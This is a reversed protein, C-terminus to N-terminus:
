ISESQRTVDVFLTLKQGPQLYKGLPLSNWKRLESVTVKFKQSIRALSDGKRVTYNIRQTSPSFEPAFGYKKAEKAKPQSWWIVLKKGPKLMDRPAMGNWRALKSTTVDYKRAIDWLTDGSNVFYTIKLSDKRGSQLKRIRQDASLSYESLRKTSVPIVLSKGARIFHGKVDNVQTLLATTTNYKQAIQSLTEGNRIRHRRWEIRKQKPLEALNKRFTASKDLPVLLEHPGDPDTAWRNYGPNLMYLEDLTIEALEAALALDIQSGTDVSALYRSNSIPKLSIHYKEPQFIIQSIALLKPVYAQTEKPLSLSFFDTQKGRKRNKKIASSVTGSGSNYAALALLWNEDFKKHLYQLYDLAANTSAKIDRRGDYWWNQKLGYIKATSPIFQWIGAARGHSYAFPQYASEVVPLLVIESPMGRNEIEKTILYLYPEARSLTRNIYNQHKAYWNIEATIKRHQISPLQFGSRLRDWFDQPTLTTTDEIKIPTSPLAPLLNESDSTQDVLPLNKDFQGFTSLNTLQSLDIVPDNVVSSTTQDHINESVTDSIIGSDEEIVPNDNNKPTALQYHEPDEESFTATFKEWLAVLGYKTVGEDQGESKVENPNTPEAQNSVKLKEPPVACGLAIGSFLLPWLFRAPTSKHKDMLM